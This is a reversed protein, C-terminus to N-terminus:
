LSVESEWLDILLENSAEIEDEFTELQLELMEEDTVEKKM